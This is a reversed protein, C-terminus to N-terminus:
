NVTVLGTMVPHISCQYNFAGAETFKLCVSTGNNLSTNFTGNTPVTTSTVTHTIGDNNTWKVVGNVPINVSAPSFALAAISVSADATVTACSVVQVTSGTTNPAPYTSGGYGGCALFLVASALTLVLFLLAHKRYYM